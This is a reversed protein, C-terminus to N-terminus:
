SEPAFGNDEPLHGLQGEAIAVLLSHIRPLGARRITQAAPLRVSSHCSSRRRPHLTLGFKEFRPYIGKHFREADAKHECAIVFDDAYRVLQARGEILPRAYRHFWVDLVDHLFINALLPSIVGGQPTGKTSKTRQGNEM